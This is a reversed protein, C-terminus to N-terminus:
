CRRAPPLAPAPVAGGAGRSAGRPPRALAAAHADDAADLPVAGPAAGRRRGAPGPGELSEPIWMICIPKGAKEAMPDLTHMRSPTTAPNHYVIPFIVTAYQDDALMAGMCEEFLKPNTAVQATVDCPQAPQRVGPDLRAAAGRHAPRPQPLELGPSSRTTPAMIGAGGSPTVIGIGRGRPPPAKAFFGATELLADFDEVELLGARKFGRELGRHLRRPQRHPEDGGARRDRRAGAQARDGAQGAARALEGLALLRRADRLGEVRSRWAAASRCRSSSPRSTACTSTPRTARGDGHPV